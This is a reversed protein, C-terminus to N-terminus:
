APVEGDLLAVIDAIASGAAFRTPRGLRYVLADLRRCDEPSLRGLRRALEGEFTTGGPASARVEEDADGDHHVTAADTWPARAGCACDPGTAVRGCGCRWRTTAMQQQARAERRDLWAQGAPNPRPTTAPRGM